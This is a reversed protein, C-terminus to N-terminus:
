IWNNQFNTLGRAYVVPKSDRYFKCKDDKTCHNPNILRLFTKSGLLTPYALQHLCTAALSCDVHICVAYDTPLSTYTRKTM